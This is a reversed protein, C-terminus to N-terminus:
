REFVKGLVIGRPRVASLNQWAREDTDNELGGMSACEAPKHRQGGHLGMQLRFLSDILSHVVTRGFPLLLERMM